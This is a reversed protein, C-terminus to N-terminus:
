LSQGWPSSSDLHSITQPSDFNEQVPCPILSVAVSNQILLFCTQSPLFSQGLPSSSFSHGVFRSHSGFVFQVWSQIVVASPLFPQSQIGPYLSACSPFVYNEYKQDEWFFIEEELHSSM